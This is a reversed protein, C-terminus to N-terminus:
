GYLYKILVAVLTISGIIAPVQKIYFTVEALRYIKKGKSSLAGAGNKADKAALLGLLYNLYDLTVALAGLMAITILVFQSENVLEKFSASDDTIIAYTAVPLGLGIYRCLDSVKNAFRLFDDDAKKQPSDTDQSM